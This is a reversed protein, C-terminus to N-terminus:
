DIVGLGPVWKETKCLSRYKGIFIDGKKVRCGEGEVLMMRLVLREKGIRPGCM